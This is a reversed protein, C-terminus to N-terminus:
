SSKDVDHVLTLEYSKRTFYQITNGVILQPDYKVVFVGNKYGVVVGVVVRGDKDINRAFAVRDGIKITCKSALIDRERKRVDAAEKINRVLGMEGGATKCRAETNMNQLEQESMQFGWAIFLAFLTAIVLTIIASIAIDSWSNNSSNFDTKM